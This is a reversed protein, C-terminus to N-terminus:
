AFQAFNPQHKETFAVAGERGEPTEIFPAGLDHPFRSRFLEFLNESPM